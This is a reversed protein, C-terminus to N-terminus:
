RYVTQKRLESHTKCQESLFRKAAALHVDLDGGLHRDTSHSCLKSNDSGGRGGGWRTTTLDDGAGDAGHDAIGRSRRMMAVRDTTSHDVRLGDLMGKVRDAEEDTVSNSLAIDRVTAFLSEM